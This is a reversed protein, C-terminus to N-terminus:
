CKLINLYYHENFYLYFEKIIKIILIMKYIQM